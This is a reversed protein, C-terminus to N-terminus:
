QLWLKLFGKYTTWVRIILIFVRECCGGALQDNKRINRVAEIEGMQHFFHWFIPLSIAAFTGDSIFDLMM